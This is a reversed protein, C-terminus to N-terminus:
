EGYLMRAEEIMPIRKVGQQRLQIEQEILHIIFSHRDANQELLTPLQETPCAIVVRVANQRDSDSLPEEQDSM